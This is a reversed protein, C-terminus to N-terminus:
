ASLRFRDVSHLLQEAQAALEQTAQTMQQSSDVNQDILATVESTTELVNQLGTSQYVTAHQIQSALENMQVIAQNIQVTSTEQEHTATHIEDTMAKVHELAKAVHQSDAMLAHLAEAIDTVVASSRQASTLIKQLADQAQHTRETGQEVNQVGAQVTRVVRDTDHQVTQVITTIETASTAVDTALSKMEEAVVAFGRGQDGAQAAIISANLALLSTQDAIKRIVELMADIDQSRQSFSAMAEMATTMTTQLVDMSSTVHAMATHGELADQMTAQSLQKSTEMSEIVQELAQMTGTLFERTTDTQQTLEATNSAIHGISPAM